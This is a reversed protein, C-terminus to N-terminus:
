NGALGMMSADHVPVKTKDNANSIFSSEDKTQNRSRDAM